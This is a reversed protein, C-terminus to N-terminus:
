LASSRNNIDSKQNKPQKRCLTARECCQAPQVLQCAKEAVHTTGPLAKELRLKNHNHSPKHWKGLGQTNGTYGNNGPKIRHQHLLKCCGRM